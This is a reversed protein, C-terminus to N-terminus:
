WIRGQDEITLLGALDLEPTRPTRLILVRGQFEPTLKLGNATRGGLSGPWVEWGLRTYFGPRDSELACLDYDEQFIAEALRRMIDSGVGQGQIPEAVSVADIYATKLPPYGEPQTWRTTHVAHGVLEAGRYALVHLGDDPLYSFLPSFDMHHAASCLSVIAGRTPHDLDRTFALTLKNM